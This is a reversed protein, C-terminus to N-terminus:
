FNQYGFSNLTYKIFYKVENLQKGRIYTCDIFPYFIYTVLFIVESGVCYFEGGEEIQFSIPKDGYTRIAM